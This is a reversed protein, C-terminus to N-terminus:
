KKITKVKGIVNMGVLSLPPKYACGGMPIYEIPPRKREMEQRVYCKAGDTFVVYEGGDKPVASFATFKVSDTTSFDNTEDHYLGIYCGYQNWKKFRVEFVEVNSLKDGEIKAIYLSPIYPNKDKSTATFDFSVMQQDKEASVYYYRGTRGGEYDFNNTRNQAKIAGCKILAVDDEAHVHIPYCSMLLLYTFCAIKKM